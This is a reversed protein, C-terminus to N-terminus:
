IQDQQRCRLSQYVTCHRACFQHKASPATDPATTQALTRLLQDSKNMDRKREKCASWNVSSCIAPLNVGGSSESQHHIKMWYPRYSTSLGAPSAFQLTCVYKEFILVSAYSSCWSTQTFANCFELLRERQEVLVSIPRDRGLLQAGHHPRQSLVRGFGLQLVHDVLDISITLGPDQDSSESCGLRTNSNCCFHGQAFAAMKMLSVLGINVATSAKRQATRNEPLFQKKMMAMDSVFHLPVNAQLLIDSM